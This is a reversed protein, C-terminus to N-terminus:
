RRDRREAFYDELTPHKVKQRYDRVTMRIFWILFLLFATGLLTLSGAHPEGFVAHLGDAVSPLGAWTILSPIIFLGILIWFIISLFFTKKSM